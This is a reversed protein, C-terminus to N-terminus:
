FSTLVDLICVVLNNCFSFFFFFVFLLVDQTLWWHHCGLYSPLPLPAVFVVGGLFLRLVLGVNNSEVMASCRRRAGTMSVLRM